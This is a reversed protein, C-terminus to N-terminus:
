AVEEAPRGGRAAWADVESLNFRLAGKPGGGRRHPMGATAVWRKVTRTSVGFHAAVDEVTADAKETANHETM